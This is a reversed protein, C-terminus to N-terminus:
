RTSQAQGQSSDFVQMCQELDPATSAQYTQLGKVDAQPRCSPQAASPVVTGEPEFGRLMGDVRM